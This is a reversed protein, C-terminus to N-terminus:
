EASVRGLAKKLLESANDILEGQQQNLVFDGAEARKNIQSQDAMVLRTSFHLSKTILTVLAQSQGGMDSSGDFFILVELEQGMRTAHNALSKFWDTAQQRGPKNRLQEKKRRIEDSLISTLPRIIPASINSHDQEWQDVTDYGTELNERNVESQFVKFIQNFQEWAMEAQLNDNLM